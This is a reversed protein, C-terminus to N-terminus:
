LDRQCLLDRGARGSCCFGQRIVIVVGGLSDVVARQLLQLNSVGETTGGPDIEHDLFRASGEFSTVLTIHVTMTTSWGGDGSADVGFRAGDEWADCVMGWPREAGSPVSGGDNSSFNEEIGIIISSDGARQPSILIVVDDCPIGM